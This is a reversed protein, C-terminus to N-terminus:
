VGLRSQLSRDRLGFVWNQAPFYPGRETGKSHLREFIGPNAIRPLMGFKWPRDAYM